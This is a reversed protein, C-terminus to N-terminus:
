TVDITVNWAMEALVDSCAVKPSPTCAPGGSSFLNASGAAVAKFQGTAQTPSKAGGVQELIGSNASIPEDYSDQATVLVVNVTTGARVTFTKGNDGTGLTLGGVVNPVATTATTPPVTGLVISRPPTTVVTPPAVTSPTTIVPPRTGPPVVPTTSLNGNGSAATTSPGNSATASPGNSATAVGGQVASALPGHVAVKHGSNSGSGALLLAVVAVALVLATAGVVLVPRLFRPNGGTAGHGAIASVLKDGIANVIPLEDNM